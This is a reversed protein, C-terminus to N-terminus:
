RIAILVYEYGSANCQEGPSSSSDFYWSITKGDTSKKALKYNVKSSDDVFFCGGADGYEETLRDCLITDRVYDNGSHPSEGKISVLKLLRPAFSCTVECPHDPGSTGTGTYTIIEVQSAGLWEALAAKEADTLEKDTTVGETVSANALLGVKTAYTLGSPTIPYNSSERAQIRGNDAGSVALYGNKLILGNIGSGGLKVLGPVGDHKVVDTKQVYNSLDQVEGPDGKEGKAGNRVVFQRFTNDAFTATWVNVGESETSAETQQLELLRFALTENKWTNLIDAYDEIIAEGNDIGNSVSIGSYIATNWVYSLNGDEGYCAFRVLFNLSGVYETANHSILWSFCVGPRDLDPITAVDTVEYVGVSQEKTQSDINIYHVQVSDCQLMDHGEITSPVEFTFRESNHDHQILCSKRSATNVMERTIPDIVFHTDTDYVPHKMNTPM